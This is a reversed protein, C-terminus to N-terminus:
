IAGLFAENQLKIKFTVDQKQPFLANQPFIQSSFAM